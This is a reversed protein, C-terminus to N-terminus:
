EKGGGKRINKIIEIVKLIIQNIFAIKKGEAELEAIKTLNAGRQKAMTDIQGQMEKLRAEYVGATGANDKLTKNLKNTLDKRLNQEELLQDKIRSVQEIRNELETEAKIARKEQDTGRSKFGAIVAKVKEFPTLTPDNTEIELYRVTQDYNESGTHTRNFDEVSIQMLENMTEGKHDEIFQYPDFYHQYIWDQTYGKPWFGYGLALVLRLEIHLHSPWGGSGGCTGIMQGMNVEQGEYCDISNLHCYHSYVVDGANLKVGNVECSFGLIHKIFVHNGFGKTKGDWYICKEVVGNAIAWVPKGKDQEGAGWNYDLGPHHVDGTWQLYEYGAWSSTNPLGSHDMPQCFANAKKM